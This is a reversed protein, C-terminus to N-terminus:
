ELPPTHLRAEPNRPPPRGHARQKIDHTYACRPDTHHTSPTTVKEKDAIYADIIPSLKAMVSTTSNGQASTGMYKMGSKGKGDKGSVGDSRDRDAM